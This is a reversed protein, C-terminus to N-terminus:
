AGARLRPIACHVAVAEDSGGGFRQPRATLGSGVTAEVREGTLVPWSARGGHRVFRQCLPKRGLLCKLLDLRLSAADQEFLNTWLWGKLM